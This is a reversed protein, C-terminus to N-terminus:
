RFLKGGHIGPHIGNRNRRDHRHPEGGNLISGEPEVIVTKISPNKEKLFKATGAFTGGSGAGAVFVDIRGGLDNWIEPAITKYYAM